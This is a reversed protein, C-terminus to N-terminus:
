HIPSPYLKLLEIKIDAYANADEADMDRMYNDLFHAYSQKKMDATAEFNYRHEDSFPDIKVNLQIENILEIYKKTIIDQQYENVLKNHYKYDHKTIIKTDDYLDFYKYIINKFTTNDNIFLSKLEKFKNDEIYLNTECQKYEYLLEEYTNLDDISDEIKFEKNFTLHNFNNFLCSIKKNYEFLYYKDIINFLKQTYDEILNDNISIGTGKIEKIGKIFFDRLEDNTVIKTVIEGTEKSLIINESSSIIKNIIDIFNEIINDTYNILLNRIINNKIILINEPTLWDNIKKGFIYESPPTVNSIKNHILIITKYFNYIYKFINTCNNNNNFSKLHYYIFENEPYIYTDIKFKKDTKIYINYLKIYKIIDYIKMYIFNKNIIEIYEINNLDTISTLRTINDITGRITTLERILDSIQIEIKGIETRNKEIEETYVRITNTGGQGTTILTDLHQITVNIAEIEEKKLLIDAHFPEFYIIIDLVQKYIDVFGSNEYISNYIRILNSEIV